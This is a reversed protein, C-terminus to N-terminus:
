ENLCSRRLLARGVEYNEVTLIKSVSELVLQEEDIILTEKKEM